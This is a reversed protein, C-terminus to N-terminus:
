DHDVELPLSRCEGSCHRLMDAVEVLHLVVMDLTPRDWRATMEGRFTEALADLEEAALEHAEGCGYGYRIGAAADDRSVTWQSCTEGMLCEVTVSWRRAMVGVAAVDAWDWLEAM